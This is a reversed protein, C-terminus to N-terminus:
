QIGGYEMWGYIRIKTMTCMVVYRTMMAPLFLPSFVLFTAPFAFTHDRTGGEARRLLALIQDEQERWFASAAAWFCASASALAATASSLCHDLPALAFAFFYHCGKWYSVQDFGVKGKVSM